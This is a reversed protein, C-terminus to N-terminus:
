ELILARESRGAAACPLARYRWTRILIDTKSAEEELVKSDDLSGYVIRVNPYKEKIPAAKSENRM